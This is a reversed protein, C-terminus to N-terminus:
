TASDEHVFRMRDCAVSVFRGYLYAPLIWCAVFWGEADGGLFYAAFLARYAGFATGGEGARASGAAAAAAAAVAPRCRENERLAALAASLDLRSRVERCGLM